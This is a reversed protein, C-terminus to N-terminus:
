ERVKAQWNTSWKAPDPAHYEANQVGSAYKANMRPGFGVAQFNQVMRGKAAAYSSAMEAGKAALKRAGTAAMEPVSRAM